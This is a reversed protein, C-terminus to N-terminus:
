GAAQSRRLTYPPFIRLDYVDDNGNIKMGAKVACV